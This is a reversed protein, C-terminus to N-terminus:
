KRYSLRRLRDVCKSLMDNIYNLEELTEQGSFSLRVVSNVDSKNIKIASLVHSPANEFNNCASGTSIEIGKSNLLPVLEISNVGKFCVALNCPTRELFDVEGQEQIDAGVLYSNVINNAIYNWVFDRGVSSINEYDYDEVAKGLSAIGLLNETGGFLHREQSGYILPKLEKLQNSCLVGVGKLGGLKHGSFTLFDVCEWCAMDVKCSPIYATADVLVLGGYKHTLDCIAEIQNITGIENNAAEFCVLPRLESDKVYNDLVNKLHELLIRGSYDVKLFIKYRCSNCAEIMSKHATPSCIPIFKNLNFDDSTLGKIVLSNSASGSSTFVINQEETNIFKAVSARAEELINKAEIGDSYISSPNGYVDLLKTIYDKVKYSLPSTAAYDLFINRM